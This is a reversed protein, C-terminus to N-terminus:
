QYVTVFPNTEPHKVSKWMGSCSGAAASATASPMMQKKKKDGCTM